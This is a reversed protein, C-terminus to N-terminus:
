GHTTNKLDRMLQNNLERVDKLISAQLGKMLSNFYDCFFVCIPMVLNMTLKEKFITAREKHTEGDYEKGKEVSLVAMINHYNADLGNKIFHKLDIYQGATIKAPDLCVRYNVGDLKFEKKVEEGPIDERLFGLEGIVKGFSKANMKMVDVIKKDSVLDYTHVYFDFEDLDKSLSVIEYFNGISIKDWGM